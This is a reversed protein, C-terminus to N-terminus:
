ISNYNLLITLDVKFKGKDNVRARIKITEINVIDILVSATLGAFMGFLSSITDSARQLAGSLSILFNSLLAATSNL